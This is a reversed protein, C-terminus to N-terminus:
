GAAKDFVYQELTDQGQTRIKHWQRGGYYVLSGPAATGEHDYYSICDRLAATASDAKACHEAYEAQSEEKIDVVKAGKDAMTQLMWKIYEGHDEITDTFNFSGGGGQPGTVVFMNPFGKTQLGLWTKTGDEAWTQKLTRGDRGKIMDFTATAMWQFGTAYILVDVPYEVGDHVVGRENIEQVGRPATDILHVHPKNFTPLYEDHFTPRKCGYAYYPKLAEATKPDEVIADVRERIQEMIRFNTDLM